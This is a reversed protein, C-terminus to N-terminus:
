GFAPFQGYFVIEWFEIASKHNGRAEAQIALKAM